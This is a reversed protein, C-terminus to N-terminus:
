QDDGPPQPPQARNSVYWEHLEELREGARRGRTKGFRIASDRLVESRLLDILQPMAFSTDYGKASLIQDRERLETALERWEQVIMFNRTAIEVFYERNNPRALMWLFRGLLDRFASQVQMRRAADEVAHETTMTDLSHLGETVLKQADKLVSDNALERKQAALVESRSPGDTRFSGPLV